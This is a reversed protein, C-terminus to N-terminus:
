RVLLGGDEDCAGDKTEVRDSPDIMPISPKKCSNALPSDNCDEFADSILEYPLSSAVAVWDGDFSLDAGAPPLNVLPVKQTADLPAYGNVAGKASKDEKAPLAAVAASANADATVIGQEIKDLHAEDVPTVGDAWNTPSYAM